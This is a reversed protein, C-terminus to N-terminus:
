SQVLKWDENNTQTLAMKIDKSRETINSMTNIPIKGLTKLELAQGHFLMALSSSKWILIDRHTTEIITGLLCFLSLVIVTAPYSFWAWRVKVYTETEFARGSFASSGSDNQQRINNTMSTALNDIRKPLDETDYLAHMVDSSFASGSGSANIRGSGTFTESMFSNMASAALSAVKFSSANAGIDIISAPPNYILDADQSHTATNNRWTEEM